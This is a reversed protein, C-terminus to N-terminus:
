GSIATLYDTTGISCRSVDGLAPLVQKSAILAHEKRVGFELVPHICQERIAGLALVEMM